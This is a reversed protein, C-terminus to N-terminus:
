RSALHEPHDASAELRDLRANLKAIESKESAIEAKQSESEAKQRAIEQQEQQEQKLLVPILEHYQVSEVEGNQNRVVLEPYVKAVEEAILGYQQTNSDDSKYTYTVPRLQALKNSQDDLSAIDKKYRASSMVAGIQDSRLWQLPLM